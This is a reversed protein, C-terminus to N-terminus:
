SSKKGSSKKSKALAKREIRKLAKREIRKLAQQAGVRKWRTKDQLFPEIHKVAQQSGLKGLAQIAHGNVDPEALLAILAAETRGDPLKWLNWVIMQRSSGHRRDCVIDLLQDLDEQVAVIGIANGTAWKLGSNEAADLSRFLDILAQNAKGSAWPVSLTRVLSEKVGDNEVGDRHLKELWYILVPVAKEYSYGSHRLDELTDGEIGIKFLDDMIPQSVRRFEVAHASRRRVAMEAKYAPDNQIREIIETKTEGQRPM